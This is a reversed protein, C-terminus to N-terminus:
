SVDLRLFAQLLTLFKSKQHSFSKKRIGWVKFFFFFPHIIEPFKWPKGNGESGLTARCCSRGLMGTVRFDRGFGRSGPRTV